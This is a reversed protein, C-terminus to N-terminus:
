TFIAQSYESNVDQETGRSRRAESSDRGVIGSIQRDLAAREEDTFFERGAWKAPRQLPIDADKTWIGQLDPEGWPTKPAPGTKATATPAKGTTSPTQGAITRTALSIVAVTTAVEVVQLLRQRM